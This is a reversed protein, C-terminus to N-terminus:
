ERCEQGLAVYMDLSEGGVGMVCVDIRRGGLM